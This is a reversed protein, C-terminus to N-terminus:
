DTFDPKKSRALSGSVFDQVAKKIMDRVARTQQLLEQRSGMFASPDPFGWHLKEHKGPFVPCREASAEDCVTIVYDYTRGERFFDDVSKTENRSIDIGDEKMVEVAVPNLIGKELGASEAHFTDGAFKKLYAEAMQSRASNHICLFLVKKMLLLSSKRSRNESSDSCQCQM